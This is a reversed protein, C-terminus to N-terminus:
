KDNEIDDIFNNVDSLDLFTVFNLINALSKSIKYKLSKKNKNKNKDAQYIACLVVCITLIIFVLDIM